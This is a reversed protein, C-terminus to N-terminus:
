TLKHVSGSAVFRTAIMEASDRFIESVSTNVRKTDIELPKDNLLGDPVWQNVIIIIKYYPRAYCVM